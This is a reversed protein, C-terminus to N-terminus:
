SNFPSLIFCFINACLEAFMVMGRKFEKSPFTETKGAKFPRNPLSSLTSVILIAASFRAM